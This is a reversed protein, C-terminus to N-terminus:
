FRKPTKLWENKVQERLSNAQDIQGFFPERNKTCITIYYAGSKSYDYGCLRRSTNRFKENYDTKM